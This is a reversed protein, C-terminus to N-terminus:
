GDLWGELWELTPGIPALLAKFPCIPVMPPVPGVLNVYYGAIPRNIPLKLYIYFISFQHKLPGLYNGLLSFMVGHVDRVNALCIGNKPGPGMKQVGYKGVNTQNNARQHGMHARPTNKFYGPRFDPGFHAPSAPNPAM